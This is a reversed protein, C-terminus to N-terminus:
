PPLSPHSKTFVFGSISGRTNINAVPDCLSYFSLLFLFIYIRMEDEIRAECSSVIQRGTIDQLKTAQKVVVLFHLLLAGQARQSCHIQRSASGIDGGSLVHSSIYDRSTFDEAFNLEDQKKFDRLRTSFDDGHRCCCLVVEIQLM